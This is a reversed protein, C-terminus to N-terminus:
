SSEVPGETKFTWIKKGTALELAYVSQDGSGIYVRGGVVAASSKIPGQTKFSWLLALKKDLHGEAVGLLAPGGRYMPWNGGASNQPGGAVAISLLPLLSAVATTQSRRRGAPVPSARNATRRM